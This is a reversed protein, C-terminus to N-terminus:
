HGWVKTFFAVNQFYPPYDFYVRFSKSTGAKLNKAVVFEKTITQPKSSIGLGDSFFNFFGTSKFFGGPAFGGVAHGQNVLKIEFTVKGIDFNGENKVRGTFVIKELSLIRKNKLKYLSVKKTYKDVIFLSFILIFISTLIVSFIMPMKLSEKQQTIIKIISFTTIGMIIFFVLFHWYNFSM